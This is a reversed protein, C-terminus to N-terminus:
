AYVLDEQISRLVHIRICSFYGLDVKRGFKKELFETLDMRNDFDHHTTEILLDIDSKLSQENRAFSGFLAIKDVKFRKNLEQKNEKLFSIIDEKKLSKNATM